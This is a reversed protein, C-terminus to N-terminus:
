LMKLIAGQSQLKLKSSMMRATKGTIPHHWFPEIEDIPTLVFPRLTVGPHPLILPIFKRLATERHNVNQGVIVEHYTLLDIDLTRPGWRQRRDRGSRREIEHCKALIALPPFHARVRVVGNVFAPQDTRGFPASSYWSSRKVIRLGAADLERAARDLTELPGGWAGQKNSGLGLLIM